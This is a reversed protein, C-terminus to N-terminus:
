GVLHGQGTPHEAIEEAAASLLRESLARLARGLALEEGIRPVQSDGPKLRAVGEGEFFGRSTTVRASAKCERDDEIISVDIHCGLRVPYNGEEGSPALVQCNSGPMFVSEHGDDWHVRIGGASTSELVAGQRPAVGLTNITVEIRDGAKFRM